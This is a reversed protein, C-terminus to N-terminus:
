AVTTDSALSTRKRQWDILETDEVTWHSDKSKMWDLTWKKYSKSSGTNRYWNVARILRAELEDETGEFQNWSPEEGYLKKQYNM